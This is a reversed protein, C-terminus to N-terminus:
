GRFGTGDASDAVIYDFEAITVRVMGNPAQTSFGGVTKGEGGEPDLPYGGFELVGIYPVLNTLFVADSLQAQLAVGQLEQLAPGAGTREVDVSAPSGTTTQWGGRAYGKDVPTKEVVRKGIELITKRFIVEVDRFTRANFQAVDIYFGM